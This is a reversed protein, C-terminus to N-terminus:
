SNRSAYVAPTCGFMEKFYRSFYKPTNFGVRAAIEAIGADRDQVLMAAAKKLRITRMFESPAMGTVSMVKRYLNMRHMAMDDALEEVSYDANSLNKEI